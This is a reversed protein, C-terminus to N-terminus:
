LGTVAKPLFKQQSQRSDQRERLREINELRKSVTGLVKAFVEAVQPM